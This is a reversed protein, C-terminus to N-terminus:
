KGLFPSPFIGLAHTNDVWKLNFGSNIYNGFVSLLDNTKLDESFGYIEIISSCNEYAKEPVNTQKPSIKMKLLDNEM